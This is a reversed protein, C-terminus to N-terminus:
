KQQNSVHANKHQRQNRINVNTKFLFNKKFIHGKYLAIEIEFYIEHSVIRKKTGVFKNIKLLLLQTKKTSSTLKYAMVNTNSIKKKFM